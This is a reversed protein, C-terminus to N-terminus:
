LRGRPRRDTNRSGGHSKAHSGGATGAAKRALRGSGGRRINCGGSHKCTGDPTHWGDDQAQVQQGADWRGFGDNGRRAGSFRGEWAHASSSLSVAALIAMSLVGARFLNSKSANKM